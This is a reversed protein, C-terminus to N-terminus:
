YSRAENKKSTDKVIWNLHEEMTNTNSTLENLSKEIADMKNESEKLMLAKLTYYKDKDITFSFDYGKVKAKYTIPNDEYELNDLKIVNSNLYQELTINSLNTTISLWNPTENMMVEGALEIYM